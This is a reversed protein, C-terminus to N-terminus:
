MEQQKLTMMDLTLYSKSFKEKMHYDEKDQIKQDLWQKTTKILENVEKLSHSKVYDSFDKAGYNKSGFRGNTLFLPYINYKRKAENSSKIGPYDFDYFLLVKKYNEKLKLILRQNPLLVETQPAIANIGFSYLSMVDKYSKTIIVTDGHKPLQLLGQTINTNSLFKYKKRLPFYIKFFGNGFYYAYAPDDKIHFYNIRKNVWLTDIAYVNFKNLISIDINFQKWYKLDQEDFERKKIKIDAPKKHTNVDDLIINNYIIKKNNLSFDFVIKELAEKYSLKFIHMVLSFCNGTFYGGFDKFILTNGFYKFRCSPFKDKRLPSKFNKKTQVKVGLYYEFIEEQTTRNLVYNTTIFPKIEYM